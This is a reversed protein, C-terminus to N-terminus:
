CCEIVWDPLICGSLVCNRIKKNLSVTYDHTAHNRDFNCFDRLLSAYHSCILQLLGKIHRWALRRLKPLALKFHDADSGEVPEAIDQAAFGVLNENELGVRFVSKM